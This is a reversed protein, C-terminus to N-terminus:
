TDKFANEERSVITIPTRLIETKTSLAARGKQAKRVM